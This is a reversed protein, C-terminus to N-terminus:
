RALAASSGTSGVQGAAEEGAAGAAAELPPMGPALELSEVLQVPQPAAQHPTGPQGGSEVGRAQQRPLAADAAEAAAVEDAAAEDAAAQAAFGPPPPMAGAAPGVVLQREVLAGAAAAPQQGQRQEHHEPGAPSQGAAAAAAGQVAAAEAAPGGSDHHPLPPPLTVGHPPAGPARGLREVLQLATPRLSPRAELCELIIQRVEAPCEEPVSLDRLRGREPAEGSCIEWLVIGFSYIDAKETCKAGWLMEPASWALTSVVGTVYDRNLVKAMGVDAIKATGDRALLVNPSKVDFHAIRRSHLFVLGRAVDLAIKKGRRYWSVRGAAINRMLDGGELYETVLWTEEPGLHAGVFQVINVDRCARLIAIERRAENLAAASTPDGRTPIIKVAVPQVGHRLGKYVKGFGGSGLLWDSGDPRKVVELEDPRIEWDSWPLADSGSGLRGPGSGGGTSGLARLDSAPSATGPPLLGDHAIGGGAEEEPPTKKSGSSAADPGEEAIQAMVEMGGMGAGATPSGPPEAGEALEMSETRADSCWRAFFTSSSNSPLLGSGGLLSAFRSPRREVAATGSPLSGRSGQHTPLTRGSHSTSYERAPAVAFPSVPLPSPVSGPGMGNMSGGGGPPGLGLGLELEEEESIFPRASPKVDSVRALAARRGQERRQRRRRALLLALLGAVISLGAVGGVVGGVIAGVNAGGGGGGSGSSGTGSGSGTPAPAAAPGGAVMGAGTGRQTGPEAEPAPGEAVPPALIAGCTPALQVPTRLCTLDREDCLRFPLGPPLPGCLRDNGPRIILRSLSRLGSWQAPVTGSLDNNELRLADLVRFAGPVGWQPPLTGWLRTANLDLTKLQPFSGNVGWQAPLTGGLPNNSAFLFRLKPMGDAGGFTPPLGGTLSNNQVYLEQEPMTGTLSNNSLRIVGLQRMSNEELGWNGPLTGNLQNSDVRLQLLSPMSGAQGWEQPLSGTLNNDNLYLNQLQTWTDVEGWGPPLTGYFRNSQLDLTALTSLAGLGAPLTGVARVACTRCQWSLTLISGDPGCTVGGWTCAPVSDTWGTLNNGVSFQEWNEVANKLLLLAQVDLPRPGSGSGSGGPPPGAAPLAAPLVAPTLGPSATGAAPSTGASGSGGGDTPQGTARGSLAVAALLLAALLQARWM